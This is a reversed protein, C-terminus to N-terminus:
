GLGSVHRRGRYPGLAGGQACGRIYGAVESRLDDPDDSYFGGAQRAPRVKGTDM